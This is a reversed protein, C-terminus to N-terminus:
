YAPGRYKPANCDDISRRRPRYVLGVRTEFTRNRMSTSGHKPNWIDNNWHEEVFWNIKRILPFEFGVGIDGSAWIKQPVSYPSNMPSSAALNYEARIGIMWYWHSYLGLGNFYKLYNNWQIYTYRNVGFGGRQVNFPDILDREKSGKKIYAIETQWRAADRRSFEAFVGLGWGLKEAAVYNTNSYFNPNAVYDAPTFQRSGADSNRYRHRSDTVAGFVGFGKLFQSFLQNKSVLILILIFSIKKM